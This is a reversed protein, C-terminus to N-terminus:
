RNLLIATAKVEVLFRDDALKAVGLLCGAPYAKNAFFQQAVQTVMYMKEENLNKVYYNLKVIDSKQAGKAILIKEIIQLCYHLQGKFDGESIITGTSDWSTQGSLFIIQGNLPASVVQSYGYPQAAMVGKVDQYTTTLSQAYLAQSLLTALSLICLKKM